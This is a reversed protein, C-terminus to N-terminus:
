VAAGFNFPM